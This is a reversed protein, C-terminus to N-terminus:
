LPKQLVWPNEVLSADGNVEVSYDLHPTSTSFNDVIKLDADVVRQLHMANHVADLKVRQM